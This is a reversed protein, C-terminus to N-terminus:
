FIIFLLICWLLILSKDYFYKGKDPGSLSVQSQILIGDRQKLAKEERWNFHEIYTLPIQARPIDAISQEYRYEQNIQM